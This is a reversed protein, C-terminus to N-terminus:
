QRPVRREGGSFRREWDHTVVDKACGEAAPLGDSVEECILFVRKRRGDEAQYAVHLLYTEARHGYRRGDGATGLCYGDRRALVIRSLVRYALSKGDAEGSVPNMQGLAEGEMVLQGDASRCAQFYDSARVPAAAALFCAAVLGVMLGGRVRDGAAARRRLRWGKAERGAHQKLRSGEM